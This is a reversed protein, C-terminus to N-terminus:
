RYAHSYSFVDRGHVAPLLAELQGPRFDNYKFHVELADRLKKYGVCDDLSLRESVVCDNGCLVRRVAMTNLISRFGGFKSHEINICTVAM